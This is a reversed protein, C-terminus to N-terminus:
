QGSVRLLLNGGRSVVLNVLSVGRVDRSTMSAELQPDEELYLVVISHKINIKFLYYQINFTRIECYYQINFPMRSGEASLRQLPM